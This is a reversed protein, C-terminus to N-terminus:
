GGKIKDLLREKTMKVETIETTDNKAPTSCATAALALAAAGLLYTFPKRM